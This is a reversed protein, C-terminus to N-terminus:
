RRKEVARRHLRHGGTFFFGKGDAGYIMRIVKGDVMLTEPAPRLINICGNTYINIHLRRSPGREPAPASTRLGIISFLVLTSCM